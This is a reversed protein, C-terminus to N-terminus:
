IQTSICYSNAHEAYLRWIADMQQSSKTTAGLCSASQNMKLNSKSLMKMVLMTQNMGANRSKKKTNQTIKQTFIRTFFINFRIIEESDKPTWNISWKFINNQNYLNQCVHFLTWIKCVKFHRLIQKCNMTCNLISNCIKCTATINEEVKSLIQFYKEFLIRHFNTKFDIKINPNAPLEKEIRNKVEISKDAMTETEHLKCQRVEVSTM